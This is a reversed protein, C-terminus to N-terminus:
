TPKAMGKALHALRHSDLVVVRGRSCKIINRLRLQQMSRNVHVMSMGLADALVEQTLPMMFSEEIGAGARPLRQRFELLLDALREVGNLHGLRVIQRHLLNYIEVEAREVHASSSFQSDAGPEGYPADATTGATIAVVDFPAVTLSQPPAGVIDGPILFGFIQRRGNALITQRCAWGKTLVRPRTPHWAHTESLLPAGAAHGKRNEAQSLPPPSLRGGHAIDPKGFQVAQANADASRPSGGINEMFMVHGTPMGGSTQM